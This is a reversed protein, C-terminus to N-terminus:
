KEEIEFNGYGLYKINMWNIKEVGDDILRCAYEISSCLKNEVLYKVLQGRNLVKKMVGM